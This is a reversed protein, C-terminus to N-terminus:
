NTKTSAWQTSIWGWFDRVAQFIGALIPKDPYLGKVIAIVLGTIGTWLLVTAFRGSAAAYSMQEPRYWEALGKAAWGAWLAPLVSALAGLLRLLFLM